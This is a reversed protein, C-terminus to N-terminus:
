KSLLLGVLIRAAEIAEPTAGITGMDDPQQGADFQALWAMDRELASQAQAVTAPDIDSQGAMEALAAAQQVLDERPMYEPPLAFYCTAQQRQVHAIAQGFAVGIEDAVASKLEGGAVLAELAGAHRQRLDQIFDNDEYSQLRPDKLALWCARLENWRPGGFPAPRTPPVATYCTPAPTDTPAVMEYCTVVPTSLIRRTLGCGSTLLAALMVGVNRIFERRTPEM